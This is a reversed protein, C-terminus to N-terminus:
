ELVKKLFERAGDVKGMIVQRAWAGLANLKRQREGCNCDRGLLAFVSAEDVGVFELASHVADGFAWATSQLVM